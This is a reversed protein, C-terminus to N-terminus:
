ATLNAIIVISTIKNGINDVLSLSKGGRKNLCIIRVVASTKSINPKINSFLLGQDRCSQIKKEFTGIIANIEMYFSKWVCNIGAIDAHVDSLLGFDADLHWSTSSYYIYSM